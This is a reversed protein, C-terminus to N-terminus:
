GVEVVRDARVAAAEVLRANPEDVREVWARAEEPSKGFRVHRVVLRERRVADDLHLHWVVDVAERVAAWRPEDLLLYNGETVVPGTPPVWLAGALPQEVARDYAPAVVEPEGAAVRRLLVAYGEADFTDPAGKRDRLGRRELEADAYHFGDMPVVPRGLAAALTSKGVGPAGTLGLLRVEPAPVPLTTM